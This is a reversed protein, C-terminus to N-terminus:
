IRQRQHVKQYWCDNVADAVQPWSEPAVSGIFFVKVNHEVTVLKSYNVRSEKCLREGDETIHAQVAPFGLKPEGDLMRAKQGHEHIIGHKAPKVGNKNCAKGGYTLIPRDFCSYSGSHFIDCLHNSSQHKHEGSGQPESWYMPDIEEFQDEDASIVGGKPSPFEDEEPEFEYEPSNYTISSTGGADSPSIGYQMQNSGVVAHQTQIVQDPDYATSTTAYASEPELYGLETYYQADYAYHTHGQVVTSGTMGEADDRSQTSVSHSHGKRQSSKDHQHHKSKDKNKDKTKDKDKGRDKGKDRGKQKERVRHKENEKEREWEKCRDGDRDKDNSKSSITREQSGSNLEYEQSDFNSGPSLGGLQATLAEISQPDGRPREARIDYDDNYEYDLNGQHDQRVRYLMNQSRDASWDSWDSWSAPM